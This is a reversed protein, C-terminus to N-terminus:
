GVLNAARLEDIVKWAEILELKREALDDGPYSEPQFTLLLEMYRRTLATSDQLFSAGLVDFPTTGYRGLFDNWGDHQAFENSFLDDRLIGEVRRLFEGRAMLYKDVVCVAGRFLSGQRRHATALLMLLQEILETEKARDYACLTLGLAPLDFGPDNALAEADREAPQNLAKLLAPWSNIAQAQQFWLQLDEKRLRVTQPGEGLKEPPIFDFATPQSGAEDLVSLLKTITGLPYFHELQRLAGYLEVKLEHPLMRLDHEKVVFYSLLYHTALDVRENLDALHFLKGLVPATRKYRCIARIWGLPNERRFLILASEQLVNRKRLQCRNIDNIMLEAAYRLHSRVTVIFTVALIAAVLLVVLVGVIMGGSTLYAQMRGLFESLPSVDGSQM